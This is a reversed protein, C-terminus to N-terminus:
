FLFHNSNSVSKILKWVQIRNHIRLTVGTYPEVDLYTRHEDINPSLGAFNAQQDDALYYHPFSLYLPSGQCQFLLEQHSINCDSFSTMVNSIDMIGDYCRWDSTDCNSLDFTDPDDSEQVCSTETTEPDLYKAVEESLPECTCVNEKRNVNGGELPVGFELVSIGPTM